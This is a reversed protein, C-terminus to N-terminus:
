QLPPLIRGEDALVRHVNATRCFEDDDHQLHLMQALMVDQEPTWVAPHACLRSEIHGNRGIVDVNGVRGRRVRYRRGSRGIVIIYRGRHYTERQEASLVALLLQEARANAEEAIRRELAAREAREARLREMNALRAAMQEATEAVVGGARRGIISTAATAGTWITWVANAATTLTTAATQTGPNEIWSTWVTSNTATMTTGNGTSISFLNGAEDAWISPNFVDNM